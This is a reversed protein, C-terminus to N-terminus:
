KQLFVLHTHTHTHEFVVRRFMCTDKDQLGNKIELWKAKMSEAKRSNVYKGLSLAWKESRSQAVEIYSSLGNSDM